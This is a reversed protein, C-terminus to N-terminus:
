ESDETHVETYEATVAIKGLERARSKIKDLREANLIYVNGEGQRPSTAGALEATTRLAALRLSPEIRRLRTGTIETNEENFVPEEVFGQMMTLPLEKEQGLMGKFEDKLDVAEKKLAQLRMSELVEKGLASKLVARVVGIDVGVIEALETMPCEAVFSLALIKYHKDTLTQLMTAM